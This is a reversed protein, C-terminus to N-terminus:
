DRQQRTALFAARIHESIISQDAIANVVNDSAAERREEILNPLVDHKDSPLSKKKWM